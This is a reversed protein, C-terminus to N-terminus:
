QSLNFSSSKTANSATPCPSIGSMDPDVRNSGRRSSDNFGDGMDRHRHSPITQSPWCCCIRTRLKHLVSPKCSFALFIFVGQLSNCATFLAWLLPQDLAAAALGILWGLGMLLALRAYLGFHLAAAKAQLASAQRGTNILHRATALFLVLNVLLAAGVPAVFAAFLARRSSIWCHPTTGLLMVTSSANSTSADVDSVSSSAGLILTVIPDLLQTLGSLHGAHLAHLLITAVAPLLWGFLSYLLFRQLQAGSSYKFCRLSGRITRYIDFAIVSMWTFSAMLFYYKTLSLLLCGTYHNTLQPYQTCIISIYAGLLATSMSCLNLGSLNRLESLSSFLLLHLLLCIISLLLSGFVILEYPSDFKPRLGAEYFSPPVCILVSPLVSSTANVSSSDNSSNTHNSNIPENDMTSRNLSIFDYENPQLLQALQLLYISDNKLLLYEDPSMELKACTKFHDSKLVSSIHYILQDTHAIKQCDGTTERSLLSKNEVIGNETIPVVTKSVNAQTQNNDVWNLETITTNLHISEVSSATSTPANVTIEEEKLFNNNLTPTAKQVCVGNVLHSNETVCLVSRCTRRFPDYVLDAQGNCMRQEGVVNSGGSSVMNVDFIVAFSSVMGGIPTRGELIDELFGEEDYTKPQQPACNLLRSSVHNCQACHMNSYYTGNRRYYVPAQYASCLARVRQEDTPWDSACENRLKPRCHRLHEQLQDPAYPKLECKSVLLDSQVSKFEINWMTASPDRSIQNRILQELQLPSLYELFRNTDSCTVNLQWFILQQRWDTFSSTASSSNAPTALSNSKSHTLAMSSSSLFSSSSHSDASVESETPQLLSLKSQPPAVRAEASPPPLHRKEPKRDAVLRGEMRLVSRNNLHDDEDPEYSLNKGDATTAHSFTPLKQIVQQELWHQNCIACYINRYTIWNGLSTVPTEGIPDDSELRGVVGAQECRHRVDEVQDSTTAGALAAVPGIQWETPCKSRMYFYAKNSSVHACEFDARYQNTHQLQDLFQEGILRQLQKAFQDSAVRDFENQFTEEISKSADLRHENSVRFEAVM